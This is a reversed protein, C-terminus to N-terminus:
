LSAFERLDNPLDGTVIVVARLRDEAPRHTLQQEGVDIPKAGRGEVPIAM